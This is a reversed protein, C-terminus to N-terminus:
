DQDLVRVWMPCTTMYALAPKGSMMEGVNKLQSIQAQLEASGNMANERAYNAKNVEVGLGKGSLMMLLAKPDEAKGIPQYFYLEQLYEEMSRVSQANSVHEPVSITIIEGSNRDILGCLTMVTTDKVGFANPTALAYDIALQSIQTQQGSLMLTGSDVATLSIDLVDTSAPYKIFESKLIRDLGEQALKKTAAEPPAVVEEDLQLKLMRGYRGTGYFADPAAGDPSSHLTKCSDADGDTSALCEDYKTAPPDAVAPSVRVVGIMAAAGLFYLAFTRSRNM